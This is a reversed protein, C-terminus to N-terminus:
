QQVDCSKRRVMVGFYPSFVHMKEFWLSEWFTNGLSSVVVYSSKKGKSHPRSTTHPQVKCCSFCLNSKGHNQLEIGEGKGWGINVWWKLKKGNAWLMSNLHHQVWQLSWFQCCFTCLIDLCWHRLIYVTAKKKETTKSSPFQYSPSYTFIM